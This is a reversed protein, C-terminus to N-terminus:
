GAKGSLETNSEHKEVKVKSRNVMYVGLLVVAASVAQLLGIKEGDLLGWIAAFIPIIYTVAASFLPSVYKVLTYFLLLAVVSGLLALLFVYFLSSFAQAQSFSTSLDTFLLLVGASPGAFLFTFATVTKGDLDPLRYKIENLSIAYFVTAILIFGAYQWDDGLMNSESGMILGGTGALGVLVGIISGRNTKAGYFWVGIILAAIPFLSNLMGALSSNVKTQALAFLLAPFLNGVFAVIFLSKLDSTKLKKLKTMIFPSLILFAFFMRFAGVQLASFSELGRKMLIFSSGWLAAVFILTAMQWYRNNLDIAKLLAKM